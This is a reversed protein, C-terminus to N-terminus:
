ALLPPARDAQQSRAAVTDPHNRPHVAGEAVEASSSPWHSSSGRPAASTVSGIATRPNCWRASSNPATPTCANLSTRLTKSPSCSAVYAWRTLQHTKLSLAAATPTHFKTLELRGHGDPDADDCHRSPRRRAGRCPGGFAGRDAGPGELEMGLEVFFATAAELDDVVVGINDMRQITMDSLMPDPRWAPGSGHADRMTTLPAHGPADPPLTSGGYGRLDPTVVRHHEALRPAVEHWTTHTRSQGHLLVVPAGAGGYRVRLSVESVDVYDLRFGEFM